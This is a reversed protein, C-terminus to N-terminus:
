RLISVFVTDGIGSIAGIASNSLDGGLGISNDGGAVAGKSSKGGGGAVAKFASSPCDGFFYTDIFPLFKINDNFWKKNSNKKPSIM